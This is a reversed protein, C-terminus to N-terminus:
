NSWPLNNKQWGLTGDTVTYVKKYGEKALVDVARASRNGQRCILIITM